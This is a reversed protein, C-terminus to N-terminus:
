QAGAESVTTANWREIGGGVTEIQMGTVQHYGALTELRVHIPQSGCEGFPRWSFCKARDGSISEVRVANGRKPNFLTMGVRVQFSRRSGFVPRDASM